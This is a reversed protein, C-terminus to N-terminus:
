LTIIHMNKSLKEEEATYGKGLVAFVEDKTMGNRIGTIISKTGNTEVNQSILEKKMLCLDFVDLRGDRCMDVRSWDLLNTDPVALLWKQLLVVDSINLEGDANVYGKFVPAGYSVLFSVTNGVEENKKTVIIKCIGGGPAENDIM